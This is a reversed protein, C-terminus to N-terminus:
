RPKDLVADFPGVSAAEGGPLQRMAFGREASWELRFDLSRMRFEVGVEVPRPARGLVVIRTAESPLRIGRAETFAAPDSALQGAKGPEDHLEALAELIKPDRGVKLITKHVKIRDRVEPRNAQGGGELERLEKDHNRLEAELQRLQRQPLPM